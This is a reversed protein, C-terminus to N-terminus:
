EEEREKEKREKELTKMGELGIMKNREDSLQNLLPKRDGVFDRRGREKKKKKREKKGPRIFSLFFSLVSFSPSYFPLSLIFFLPDFIRNEKEDDLNILSPLLSEEKERRRKIEKKEEREKGKNEEREVEKRREEWNNVRQFEIM